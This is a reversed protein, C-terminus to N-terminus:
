GHSDRSRHNKRSRADDHSTPSRFVRQEVSDFPSLKRLGYFQHKAGSYLGVFGLQRLRHVFENRKCPRWQSM